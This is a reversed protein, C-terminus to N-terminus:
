SIAFPRTPSPGLRDALEPGHSVACRVISCIRDIDVASVAPGTPLALVQEALRETHPLPVPRQSRYPELQHCAPSFYRQAGTNEARLIRMVLDRHIGTVAEDIKVIVYQWNPDQAEDFDVVTLGSCGRLASCYRAHNARNHRMTETFADLSTLGMAASAETMKANTGVGLSRGDTTIGFTRLVRLEGALADDDTAVAGGEFCNVVKTAHFSFMEASGFGGIRRGQHSCGLAHAADFVLTLGHEKAVKELEDAACPRGWLHVGVIGSTRPTLVTEVQQPDLCGTEPDIDAFVPTLGLMSAAHATAVYTMAPMIIEGTLGTAQYLLQLAMTGSCTAVCHRVGALEAIREEFERVLAGNTLWRNDLATNLREFLRSREGVSPTGVQLVQPFTPTGGLVALDAVTNKM